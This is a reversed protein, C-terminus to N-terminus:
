VNPTSEGPDKFPGLAMGRQVIADATTLENAAKQIAKLAVSPNGNATQELAQELHLSARGMHYDKNGPKM